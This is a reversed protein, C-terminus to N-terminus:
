STKSNVLPTYVQEVLREAVPDLLKPILSVAGLAAIAPWPGSHGLRKTVLKDTVKYVPKLILFIPVVWTAVTHFFLEAGLKNVGAKKAKVADGSRQLQQQQENMAKDVADALGYGIAILWGLPNMRKALAMGAAKGTETLESAFGLYRIPTERYIDVKQSPAQPSASVLPIPQVPPMPTPLAVPFANGPRPYPTTNMVPTPYVM